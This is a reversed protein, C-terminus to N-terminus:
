DEGYYSFCFLQYFCPKEGAVNTSCLVCVTICLYSVSTSDGPAAVNNQIPECMMREDAESWKLLGTVNQLVEQTNKSTREEFSLQQAAPFMIPAMVTSLTIIIRDRRVREM